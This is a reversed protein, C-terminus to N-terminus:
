RFFDGIVVGTIKGPSENSIQWTEIIYNPLHNEPDYLGGNGRVITLRIRASSNHGNKKCLATIKETLYAATFHAPHDFQLIRMGSFLREFHHESLIIKGEVLKMTEFLGDGYRLSRNDANIIPTGEKHLKDNYYFFNGM